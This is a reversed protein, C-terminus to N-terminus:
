SQSVQSQGPSEQKKIGSEQNQKDDAVTGTERLVEDITTLGELAKLLGDQEMTIMGEAIAQKQIDAASSRSVALEEIADSMAMVEYLGIRGKYGDKCKDCGKGHYFKMPTTYRARDKENNAPIADLSAKIEDILAAPLQVEEKCNSCIKRVLRQAEVANISSAILFPEIGMNTLRPLAGPADNTHLTSLVLHGTLAAHTAMTATENDRIEGVMIINPDQRLISRLGEAFTFGIKPKIQSQNIGAIEYEVPDELTVVNVSPTSIRNLVAYLTTSKGSGTPGTSLVIGFPKSIADIIVDFARGEVGLDELTMIGHTKDLIRMVIKEGHVMPMCSVRLDVERDKFSVDFRGDQPVRTEDIKLNSLIKIRSAIAAHQELPLKLIDQLMGDVRYRIRVDTAEAEIHIDSAHLFIAYSVVAAVIKPVFGESIITNLEEISTVDKDLLSGLNAVDEEKQPPKAPSTTLPTDPTPPTTALKSSAPPIPSTASPTAPKVAVPVQVPPQTPPAPPIVTTSVPIPTALNSPQNAQEAEKSAVPHVTPDVIKRSLIKNVGLNTLFQEIWSMNAKSSDNYVVAENVAPQPSGVNQTTSPQTVQSPPTSPTAPNPSPTTQPPATKWGSGPMGAVGSNTILSEQGAAPSYQYQVLTQDIDKDSCQYRHISLQHHEEIYHCINILKPDDPHDSAVDYEGNNARFVVFRYKRAVEQPIKNLLDPPIILGALSVQGVVPQPLDSYRSLVQDISSKDTQYIVLKVHNHEEIYKWVRHLRPDSPNQAAVEYPADAQGSIQKNHGFIVFRWETILDLPIKHLLSHPINLGILSIKGMVPYEASMLPQKPPQSSAFPTQPPVPRAPVAAPYEAVWRNFDDLTTITLEFQFQTKEKLGALVGPKNETIHLPDAVAISLTNNELKYAVIKYALCVQKSIYDMATHDIKEPLHVFPVRFVQSYAQNIQDNDVISRSLLYSILASDDPWSAINQLLDDATQKQLVNLSVLAEILKTRHDFIPYTSVNAAM